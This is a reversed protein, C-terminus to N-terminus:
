LKKNSTARQARIDSEEAWDAAEEVDDVASMVETTDEEGPAVMELPVPAVAVAPPPDVLVDADLLEM